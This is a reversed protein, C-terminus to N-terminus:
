PLTLVSTPMMYRIGKKIPLVEHIFPEQSPFMILSGASPKITVNQNKFHIEGGEYDDNLYTIMSFALDTHGDQGDFHPGMNQGENWKKISLIKQDLNYKTKDLNHGEIYKSYCMEIAMKLSNIIYLSRQDLKNDGTSERNTKQIITKVAGYIVNEDDSASWTTWPPIISHSKENLDLDNIFQVLENPASIVNEWYWIDPHLGLFDFMVYQRKGNIINVDFEKMTKFEQM